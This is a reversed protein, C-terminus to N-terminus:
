EVPISNQHLLFNYAPLFFYFCSGKNKESIIHLDSGHQRIFHRAIKLGYGFGQENNTGKQSTVALNNKVSQLTAEDMGTGNDSVTVYVKDEHNFAYVEVIGSMKSFKVANEILNRMVFETMFPSAFVLCDLPVANQADISKEMLAGEIGKFTEQILSHLSIVTHTLQKHKSGTEMLNVTQELLTTSHTTLVNLRDLLIRLDQKNEKNKTKTDMRQLFGNLGLLMNRMDHMFASGIFSQTKQRSALQDTLRQLTNSVKEQEIPECIIDKAGARISSVVIQYDPKQAIAVSPIDPAHAVMRSILATGYPLNSSVDVLIADIEQEAIIEQVESELSAFFCQGVEHLLQDYETKLRSDPSAVILNIDHGM